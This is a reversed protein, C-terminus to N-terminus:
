KKLRERSIKCAHRLVLRVWVRLAADPISQLKPRLHKKQGLFYEVYSELNAEVGDAGARNMLNQRSRCDCVSGELRVWEPIYSAVLDGVLEPKQM